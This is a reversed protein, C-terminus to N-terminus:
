GAEAQGLERRLAALRAAAARDGAAAAAEYLTMLMGPSVHCARVPGPRKGVVPEAAALSARLDRVAAAVAARQEATLPPREAEAERVRLRRLADRCRRWRVALPEVADRIDRHSPFFGTKVRRRTEANFAADPLDALLAFLAEARLRLEAPGEPNASALNLPMLWAVLTNFLLPSLLAEYAGAALGAARVDEPTLRVPPLAHGPDDPGHQHRGLVPALERGVAQALRPSLVPERPVPLGAGDRKVQLATL